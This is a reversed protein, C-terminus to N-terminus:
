NHQLKIELIKRQAVLEKVSVPSHQIELTELAGPKGKQSKMEKKLAVMFNNLEDLKDTFLFM